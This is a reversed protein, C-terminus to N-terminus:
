AGVSIIWRAVVTSSAICVCMGVLRDLCSAAGLSELMRRAELDCEHGVFVFM